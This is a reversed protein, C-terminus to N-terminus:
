VHLLELQISSVIAESSDEHLLTMSSEYSNSAYYEKPVIYGIYDNTNGILVLHDTSRKLDFADKVKQGTEYFMEGPIGVFYLGGLRLIQVETEISSIGHIKSALAAAATAGEIESEMRRLEALPCNTSQAKSYAEQLEELKTLMVQSSQFSRIRLEIKFRKSSSDSAVVPIATSLVDVVKDSLIRGIRNVEDFNNDRRTFRTSVDGSPGNLFLAAEVNEDTELYSSAAGPFDASVHLNDAHLITPHCAFHYLIIRKGSSKRFDLVQLDPHYIREPSLRNAAIGDVSGAGYFVTCPEMTEIADGVAQLIKDHQHIVLERDYPRWHEFAKGIATTERITGGPGSHTHTTHIMISDVSIGYREQIKARLSSVYDSDIAVLDLSIILMDASREGIVLAKAQIPDHIGVCPREAAFGSLYTGVPPNIHINAAGCYM